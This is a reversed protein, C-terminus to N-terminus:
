VRALIAVFVIAPSRYVVALGSDLLLDVVAVALLGGHRGRGMRVRAEYVGGALVCCCFWCRFRWKADLFVAVRHLSASFSRPPLSLLRFGDKGGAVYYVFREGTCWARFYVFWSSTCQQLTPQQYLTGGGRGAVM